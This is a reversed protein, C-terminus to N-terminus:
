QKYRSRTIGILRDAPTRYLCGPRETRLSLTAPHPHPYSIHNCYCKFQFQRLQKQESHYLINCRKQHRHHRWGANENCCRLYGTHNARLCCLSHHLLNRGMTCLGHINGRNGQIPHHCSQREHLNSAHHRDMPNRRCEM